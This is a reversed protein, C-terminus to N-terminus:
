RAGTTCRGSVCAEPPQNMCRYVCRQGARRLRDGLETLKKTVEPASATAVPRYCDFPGAGTVITCDRVTSCSQRTSVFAELEQKAECSVRSRTRAEPPLNRYEPSQDFRACDGPASPPATASAPASPPAEPAAPAVAGDTAAVAPAARAAPQAVTSTAAPPPPSSVRSCGGLTASLAVLPLM